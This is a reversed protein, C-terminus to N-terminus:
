GNQSLHPPSLELDLIKLSLESTSNQRLNLDKNHCFIVWSKKVEPKTLTETHKGKWRMCQSKIGTINM